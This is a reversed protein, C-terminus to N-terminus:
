WRAAPRFQLSFGRTILARGSRSGWHRPLLRFPPLILEGRLQASDLDWHDTLHGGDARIMIPLVQGPVLHELRFIGREDTVAHIHADTWPLNVGIGALPAGTQHDLVQGQVVLAPGLVLRVATRQEGPGLVFSLPRSVRGDPSVAWLQYHMPALTALSFTAGPARAEVTRGEELGSTFGLRDPGDPLLRVQAAGRPGATLSWWWAPSRHRGRSSSACAACGPSPRSWARAPCGRRAPRSRTAGARSILVRFRGDADALTPTYTYATEILELPRVEVQADQLPRGDPDVVLGELSRDARELVLRVDSRDRGDRLDLELENALRGSTGVNVNANVREARLLGSGAVLPGVRFRGDAGAAALVGDNVSDGAGLWRVRAGTAPHEDPFGVRGSVFVPGGFRVVLLERPAAPDFRRPGLRATRGDSATAEITLQGAALGDLRFRGDADTDVSGSGRGTTDDGVGARVTLSVQAGRVPAGAASLM